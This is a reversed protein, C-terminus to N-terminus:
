DNSMGHSRSGPFDVAHPISMMLWTVDCAIDGFLRIPRVNLYGGLKCLNNEFVHSCFGYFDQHTAQIPSITMVKRMSNSM